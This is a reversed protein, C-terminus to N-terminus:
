TQRLRMTRHMKSTLARISSQSYWCNRSLRKGWRTAAAGISAIPSERRGRAAIDKLPFPPLSFTVVALLDTGRCYWILM